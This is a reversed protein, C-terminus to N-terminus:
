KKGLAAAWGKEDFGVVAVGSGVVFPRKVLRGNGALLKLAEDTTLGPLQEAIGRARYDMGSTNFLRTVKGDYAALAAKLEPLTPPTERIPKETFDVGRARLWKTADRCTSCNALTYITLAKM